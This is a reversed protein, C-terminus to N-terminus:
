SFSKSEIHLKRKVLRGKELVRSSRHRPPRAQCCEVGTMGSLSRSAESRLLTSDHADLEPWKAHFAVDPAFVAILIGLTIRSIGLM